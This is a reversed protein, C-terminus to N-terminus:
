ERKLPSPSAEVTSKGDDEEQAMRTLLDLLGKVYADKVPSIIKKVVDGPEVRIGMLGLEKFTVLFLEDFLKAAEKQLEM